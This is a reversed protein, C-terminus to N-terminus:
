NLLVARYFRRTAGITDSVSITYGSATVQTLTNWVPDELNAKWEFRYTQGPFSSVRFGITNGVLTVPQFKPRTFVTALFSKTDSLGTSTDTVRVCISNTSPAQLASPVWAFVGTNADITADPPAGATL